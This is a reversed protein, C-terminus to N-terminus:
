PKKYDLLGKERTNLEKYWGDMVKDKAESIKSSKNAKLYEKRSKATKLKQQEKFLLKRKRPEAQVETSWWM